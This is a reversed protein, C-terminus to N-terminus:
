PDIAVDLEVTRAPQCASDTCAQFRVLLLPRGSWPRGTRELRVSLELAGEYVRPAELDATIPGELPKGPPYDVTARVADSGEIWIELPVAWDPGPDNTNIHYGDAMEIRVPLTAAGSAPAAIRDAAALIRVPDDSLAVPAEDPEAPGLRDLFSDDERLMRYVARTANVSGVPARRIDPSMAAVLRVAREWQRKDRTLEYLDILNHLMVGQASPIAGDYASRARVILDRQSELTDFLGGSDPDEFLEYAKETLDRAGNLFTLEARTALASARHTELLGAILFAYDELVAPADGVVGGRSTRLLRGRSDRMTRLITRGAREAADLYRLDGLAMSGAAMGRIMMGNWAVIVKDDTSPQDRQDRVGRLRATVDVLREYFADPAMGLSEALRVPDDRLFLVNAAGDEPHHPDRFNTGLDLGFVDAAWAGDDEGLAEVIQERTWLYNQGERQNVEADIASYFLGEPSTMDRLTWELVGRLVFADHPNRARAFAEAYLAALQGNDYLMKEFHPVKWAEDTAYRHFGGGVHDYIGGFSMASLSERIAREALSRAAPDSVVHHLDLLFDLYVPQPFKPAGGFGGHERDFARSLQGIARSIEPPGVRVPEAREALQRGVAETLAASQELVQERQGAWAASVGELVQPWSPRGQAPEPPFYTGGFFPELGRDDAGRAGPPTIFVNLPWGGSRTMLQVAAMYIDDVDPREERDVKVCVFRENMLRAIGADEFCQREMVHCWYCTSYGISVLIPVGRERAAEFAEDGWPYWDV